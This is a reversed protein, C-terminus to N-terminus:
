LGQNGDREVCVAPVCGKGKSKSIRLEEAVEDVTMFSKENMKAVEKRMIKVTYRRSRRQCSIGKRSQALRRMRRHESM